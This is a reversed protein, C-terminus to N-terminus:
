WWGMLFRGLVAAFVTLPLGGVVVATWAVRRESSRGGSPMVLVVIALVVGLLCLQASLVGLLFPGMIGVGATAGGIYQYDIFPLPVATLWGLVGFALSSHAWARTPKMDHIAQV